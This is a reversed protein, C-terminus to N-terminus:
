ASSLFHRCRYASCSAGSSRNVRPDVDVLERNARLLERIELRRLLRLDPPGAELPRGLEPVGAPLEPLRVGPLPAPVLQAGAPVTLLLAVALIAGHFTPLFRILM